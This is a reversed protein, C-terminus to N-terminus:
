FERMGEHLEGYLQPLAPQLGLSKVADDIVQAQEASEKGADAGRGRWAHRVLLGGPTNMSLYDMEGVVAAWRRSSSANLQVLRDFCTQDLLGRTLCQRGCVGEAAAAWWARLLPRLSPHALNFLMVGTNFQCDGCIRVSSYRTVNPGGVDYERAAVVALESRVAWLRGVPASLKSHPLQGAVRQRIPLAALVELLRANPPLHVYADSDLYLVWDSQPLGGGGRAAGAAALRRERSDLLYEILKIRAWEANRKWAACYRGSCATPIFATFDINSRRRTFHHNLVATKMHVPWKQPPRRPAKRYRTDASVIHLRHEDSLPASGSDRDLQTVYDVWSGQPKLWKQEQHVSFIAHVLEDKSISGDGDEDLHDHLQGLQTQSLDMEQLAQFAVGTPSRIYKKKKQKTRWSMSPHPMEGRAAAMADLMNYANSTVCLLAVVGAHLLLFRHSM